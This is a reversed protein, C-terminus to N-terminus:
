GEMATLATAEARTAKHPDAAKSRAPVIIIPCSARKIVASATSGIVLDYIATHGHSGMVIYDAPLTAAQELIEPTPAGTLRRSEAAVGRQRLQETIEKLQRDATKEMSTRLETLSGFDIGYEAVAQPVRAAHFLVVRGGFATALRAAEDLVRSTVPSFDIPALITKMICGVGGTARDSRLAQENLRMLQM